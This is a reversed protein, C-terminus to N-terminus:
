EGYYKDYIDKYEKIWMELGKEFIMNCIECNKGDYKEYMVALLDEIHTFSHVQFVTDTWEVQLKMLTKIEHIVKKWKKDLVLKLFENIQRYVEVSGSKEILKQFIQNEYFISFDEPFINEKYFMFSLRYYISMDEEKSSDKYNDLIHTILSLKPELSNPVPVMGRQLAFCFWLLVKHTGLKWDVIKYLIDIYDQISSKKGTNIWSIIVNWLISGAKNQIDKDDSKMLWNLLKLYLEKNEIYWLRSIFYDVIANDIIKNRSYIYKGIISLVLKKNDKLFLHSKSILTSQIGYLKDNSLEGVRNKLESDKPYHYLLISCTITWLGRVTNLWLTLGDNESDESPDNSSSLDLIIWKLWEYVSQDEKKIEATFAKWLFEPDDLIRWIELKTNSDNSQLVSYIDVLQRYFSIDISDKYKEKSYEIFWKVVLSALIYSEKWKSSIYIYVDKIQDLNNKFYWSIINDYDYLSWGKEKSLVTDCKKYIDELDEREELTILMPEARGSWSTVEVSPKSRFSVKYWDKSDQFDSIIQKWKKSLHKNPITSLLYIQSYKKKNLEVSKIFYEEFEKIEGPNQTFYFEFIEKGWRKQFINIFSYIDKKHVLSHILDINQAKYKVIAFTVLEYFVSYDGNKILYSIVETFFTKKKSDGWLKVLEKWLVIFINEQLDNMRRRPSLTVEPFWAYSINYIGNVQPIPNKKSSYKSNENLLRLVKWFFKFTLKYDIYLLKKFIDTFFREERVNNGITILEDSKIWEFDFLNMLLEVQYVEFKDINRSLFEVIFDHSLRKGKKVILSVLTIMLSEDFSKFSKKSLIISVKRFIYEEETIQLIALYVELVKDINKGSVYDELFVIISLLSRYDKCNEIAPYILSDIIEILIKSTVKWLNDFIHFVYIPNKAVNQYFKLSEARTFDKKKIRQIGKLIFWYTESFKDFDYIFMNNSESESVKSLSINNEQKEKKEELLEWIESASLKINQAWRRIYTINSSTSHVQYSSPVTIQLIIQDDSSIKEWGTHSLFEYKLWPIPSKINWFSSTHGNYDEIISYWDILLEKTKKNEKIWVYAVGWNANGFAVITKELDKPAIKASKYDCHDWEWISTIVKYDDETIRRTNEM